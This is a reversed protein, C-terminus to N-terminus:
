RLGDVWRPSACFPQVGDRRRVRREYISWTWSTGELPEELSLSDELSSEELSSLSDLFDALAMPVTLFIPGWRREKASM